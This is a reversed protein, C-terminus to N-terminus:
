ATAKRAHYVATNADKCPQCPEEGRSRHRKYAAPTGCPKLKRPPMRRSLKWAEKCLLCTQEGMRLHRRYAAVTGHPALDGAAIRESEPVVDPGDVAADMAEWVDLVFGFTVRYKQATKEATWGLARAQEITDNITTM